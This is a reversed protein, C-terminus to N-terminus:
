HILLEQIKLLKKSKYDVEGPKGPLFTINELIAGFKISNFIEPESQPTLDICKAYCGGEINFVGDDTWRHEDDGLLLRNPDASLTTKGTGSLGFYCTIDGSKGETASAHMSLVGQKPMLYNMVGFFGKKMEGVYQTGLIAMESKAYDVAPCVISGVGEVKPDAKFEGGNIITVDPKKSFDREIEEPTPRIIMTKMFIAHYPRGCVIRVTKRYREDWGGYGDIVFIKPRSNLFHIARLKNSEFSSRPFPINIEGWWLEDKTVDCKVTRKAKPSRGMCPGSFNVLAGTSNLTTDLLEPDVSHKFEPSLAYEYLETVTPNRCITKQNLGLSKLHDDIERYSGFMRKQLFSTKPILKKFSFSKFAQM